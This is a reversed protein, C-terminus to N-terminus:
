AKGAPVDRRSSQLEPKECDLIWSTATGAELRIGRYFTFVCVSSIPVAVHKPALCRHWGAVIQALELWKGTSM